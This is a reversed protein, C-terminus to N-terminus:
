KVKELSADEIRFLTFWCNRITTPGLRRLRRPFMTEAKLRPLPRNELRARHLRREVDRVAPLAVDAGVDL